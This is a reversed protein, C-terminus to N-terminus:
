LGREFPPLRTLLCHGETHHPEITVRQQELWRQTSEVITVQATVPHLSAQLAAEREDALKYGRIDSWAEDVLPAASLAQATSQAPGM